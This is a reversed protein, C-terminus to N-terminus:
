QAPYSVFLNHVAVICVATLVGQFVTGHGGRGIVRELMLKDADVRRLEVAKADVEQANRM